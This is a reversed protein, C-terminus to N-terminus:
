HPDYKHLEELRITWSSILDLGPRYQEIARGLRTDKVVSLEEISWWYPDDLSILLSIMDNM